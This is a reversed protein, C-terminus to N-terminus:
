RGGCTPFDFGSVGHVIFGGNVMLVFGRIGKPLIGGDEDQNVSKGSLGEQTLQWWM